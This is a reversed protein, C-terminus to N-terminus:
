LAIRCTNRLVLSPELKLSTGEDTGEKRILRIIETASRSGLEVVPSHVTTLAPNYHQALISDDFGVISIQEPVQIGMAQLARICGWAMEDNACFFADPLAQGRVLMLYMESYAIAEEFYGKLQFREEVPLSYKELTKKYSAFRAAEDFNDVGHVYGIQRHGLKILYEVAQRVGSENDITVSSINEAHYERDIFVVPMGTIALREIYSDPLGDNMIIAGEVGSSLIMSYIEEGTNENSVCINLTYGNMKCQLHVAQIFQRYFDGQVSSLFLGVTNKKNSKLYKANVNPIYKLREVTELVRKTTEDSVNGVNNLVNSVTSIAVGSERAVDKITVM